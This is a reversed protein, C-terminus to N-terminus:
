DTANATREDGPRDWCAPCWPKRLVLQTSSSLDVLNLVIVRGVTVPPLIRTLQKVAELALLNAAATVAMATNERGSSDDRRRKDLFAELNFAREPDGASAIVRMRYCMFCATEYPVVTPGLVIEDAVCSGNLLPVRKALAARNVRFAMGIRGADLCNIILDCGSIATEAATDDAPLPAIEEVRTPLSFIQLGRLMSETRPQGQDGPRYANSLYLDAPRVVEEDFFRLTGVGSNALAWAVNAGIGGLGYIAVTAAALRKQAAAPDASLAQFLNLQPQLGASREGISELEAADRLLNHEVLLRFAADLDEPAFTPAVAASIEEYTHNGDLLPLVELQFERFFRGKVRVRRTASIFDLAEEGDAEPPTFLVYYSNPLQPKRFTFQSM